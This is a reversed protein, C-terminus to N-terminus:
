LVSIASFDDPSITPQRPGELARGSAGFFPASSFIPGSRDPHCILFLRLFGLLAPRVGSRCFFCFEL